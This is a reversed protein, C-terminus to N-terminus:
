AAPSRTWARAHRAPASPRVTAKERRGGNSDELNVAHPETQREAAAAIGYGAALSVLICIIWKM